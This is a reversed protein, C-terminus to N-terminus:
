ALSDRWCELPIIKIDALKKTLLDKDNTILHTAGSLMASSIHIADPLRVAHERRLKAAAVLVDKSVSKTQLGLRDFWTLVAQEQAKTQIGSHSLIEAIAVESVVADLNSQEIELLLEQAVKSLDFSGELAYICVNTDLAIM